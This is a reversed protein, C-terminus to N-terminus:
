SHQCLDQCNTIQTGTEKTEETKHQWFMKATKKDVEILLKKRKIKVTASDEM